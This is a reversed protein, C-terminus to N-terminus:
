SAKLINPAEQRRGSHPRRYYGLACARPDTTKKKQAGVPRCELAGCERDWLYREDYELNHEKLGERNRHHEKSTRL